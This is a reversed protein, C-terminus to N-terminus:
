KKLKGNWLDILDGVEESKLLPVQYDSLLLSVAKKSESPIGCDIATIRKLGSNSWKLQEIVSRVTMESQNEDLLVVAFAKDNIDTKFVFFVFNKVASCVGIIVLLSLIVYIFSQM